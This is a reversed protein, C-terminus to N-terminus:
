PEALHRSLFADLGDSYRRGSTLFGDNHSGTIELFEKPPNALEFLKRGFAYPVIEDQPSHVVLVPCKVQRIRDKTNYHIRALLRVPLFPYLRAGMDPVSTFTSELILAAPAQEVALWAAVAGGLSRGFLVIQSPPIQREKVLYDWAATADLYTGQETPKGESAGYGRYDFIFVSLRLDQFLVFSELRDAINGANGHCFLLTARPKDAPIFWASLKVGDSARLTVAEYSLGADSPTSHVVRTPMFVLRPQFLYVLILIAGYVAAIALLIQM